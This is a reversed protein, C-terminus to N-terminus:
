FTPHNQCNNAHPVGILKALRAINTLFTLNSFQSQCYVVHEADETRQDSIASLWGGVDDLSPGRHTKSESPIAIMSVQEAM